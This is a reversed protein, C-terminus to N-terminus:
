LKEIDPLPTRLIRIQILDRDPKHFTVPCQLLLPQLITEPFEPKIRLLPEKQVPFVLLHLSDAQMRIQTSQSSSKVFLCGSPLQRPHLLHANVRDTKGM